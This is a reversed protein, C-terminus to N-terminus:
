RVTPTKTSIAKVCDIMGTQWHRKRHIAGVLSVTRRIPGWYRVSRTGKRLLLPQFEKVYKPLRFQNFDFSVKQEGSVNMQEM